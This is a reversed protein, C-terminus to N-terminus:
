CTTTLIHTQPIRSLRREGRVAPEAAEEPAAEEAGAPEAPVREPEPGYVPAAYVVGYGEGEDDDHDEDAHVSFLTREEESRDGDSDGSRSLAHTLPGCCTRAFLGRSAPLRSSARAYGRIRKGM